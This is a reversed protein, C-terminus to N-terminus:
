IPWKILLQSLIRLASVIVSLIHHCLYLSRLSEFYLVFIVCQRHVIFCSICCLYFSILSFSHFLWAAVELSQISKLYWSIVWSEHRPWFRCLLWASFTFTLVIFVHVWYCRRSVRVHLITLTMGISDQEISLWIYMSVSMYLGLSAILSFVKDTGSFMLILM